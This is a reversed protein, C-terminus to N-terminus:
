KCHWVEVSMKYITLVKSQLCEQYEDYNTLKTQNWDFNLGQVEFFKIEM